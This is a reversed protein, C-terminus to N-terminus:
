NVAILRIDFLLVSGASIPGITNNGYALHSPILLVGEGGENFYPIGETWGAIVENLRFTSGNSDDSQDFVIGDTFYGKYEVTVESTATPNEGEGVTNIIYYLGSETKQAELNNSELYAVIEAENQATYDVPTITFNNTENGCSFLLFFLFFATVYKMFNNQYIYLIKLFRFLM